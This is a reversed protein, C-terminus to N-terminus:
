YHIDIYHKVIQKLLVAVPLLHIMITHFHWERAVCLEIACVRGDFLNRVHFPQDDETNSNISAYSREINSLDYGIAVPIIVFCVWLVALFINLTIM